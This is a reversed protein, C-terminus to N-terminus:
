PMRANTLAPAEGHDRHLAAPTPRSQMEPGCPTNAYIPPCLRPMARSERKLEVVQVSSSYVQGAFFVILITALWTETCLILWVRCQQYMRQMSQVAPISTCVRCQPGALAYEANEASGAQQHMSQM